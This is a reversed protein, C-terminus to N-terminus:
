KETQHTVGSSLGSWKRDRATLARSGSWRTNYQDLLRDSEFPPRKQKGYLQDDMGVWPIPDITLGEQVHYDADKDWGVSYLFLSREHGEALEPLNESSFSVALEDGANLIAPAQDQKLILEEVNGYRTVWGELQYIWKAESSVSSYEPTLPQTWPLDQYDSFGRRKLTATEPDLLTITALESRSSHVKEVLLVQDLHIEFASEWKLRRTGEPLRGELDVWITKTKGIPAGVNVDELAKWSGDELEASLTPFPFPLDKRLSAAINAMGGGFRLWGTIELALPKQIDLAGFDMTVGFTEVLGRLQPERLQVPSAHVKDRLKLAETVDLGDNRVASVVQIPNEFLGISSEPYPPLQLKDNHIPRMSKPHDVVVLNLHDLYLAERLEETIRIEYAGDRTPFSESTGLYVHETPDAEIFRGEAVPLGLPSGGLLDTHFTFKEGDWIYLYPCSGTPLELETLVIQKKPDVDVENVSLTLDFWRVHVAQLQSRAGVGIEVPLKQVTRALRLGDAEIEIRIGLGSHNSRNGFLRVKLLQNASAGDNKLFKLGLGSDEFIWDSDGDNDLDAFAIRRISSAVISGLGIDSTTERFGRTGRNRWVRLGEGYAIIDLWGDQDYDHLELGSLAEPNLTILQGKDSGQFRVDIGKETLAVFDPSLDNNLDGIAFAKSVPWDVPSKSDTLPAGRQDTLLLPSQDARGIFVDMMDDRNWDDVLLRQSNDLEPIGTEEVQENFIMNGLNRFLRVKGSVPEAVLLDLTGTFEIDTLAADQGLAQDLGSFPTVDLALGNTSMQFVHTAAEGLVIIDEVRDNQLDGVLLERYAGESTLPWPAGKPEYRSGNWALLQLGTEKAENSTLVLAENVGDHELDILAFPGRWNNPGAKPAWDKTVDLLTVEVGRGDPQTLKFPARIDTYVCAELADPGQSLNSEADANEQLGRLIEQALFAQDTRLYVQALRYNAVSMGPDIAVAEEYELMAAELQNLGEYARGLQFSVQAIDPNIQKCQSLSKSANEFDSRRLHVCGQLYHAGAHNPDQEILIQTQNMTQDLDELRLSVVALNLRGDPQEANIEVAKAFSDSAKQFAGSEFFVRGENIHKLYEDAGSRPTFMYWLIAGLILLDFLVFAALFQRGSISKAPSM